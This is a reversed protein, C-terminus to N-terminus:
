DRGRFRFLRRRTDSSNTSNSSSPKSQPAVSDTAAPQVGLSPKQALFKQAQTELKAARAIDKQAEQDKGLNDLCAARKKYISAAEKLFAAQDPNPSENLIEIEVGFLLLAM